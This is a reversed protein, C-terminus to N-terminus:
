MKRQKFHYRVVLDLSSLRIYGLSAKKGHDMQRLKGPVPIVLM